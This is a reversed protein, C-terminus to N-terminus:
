SNLFDDVPNNRKIIKAPENKEIIEIEKEVKSLEWLNKLRQLPNIM